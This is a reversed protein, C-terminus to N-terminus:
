EIEKYKFFYIDENYRNFLTFIGLDPFYAFRGYTGNPEKTTPEINNLPDVTLQSINWNSGTYPSGSWSLINIKTTESSNDWVAFQRNGIYRPQMMGHWSAGVLSGNITLTMDVWSGNSPNVSYIKNERILLIVDDEPSYDMGNYSSGDISNSGVSVWPQNAFDDIQRKFFRGTGVGKTWICRRTTDYCSGTGSSNGGGGPWSGGFYEIAGTAPNVVISKTTGTTASRYVNGQVTVVLGLDPVFVNKNYSHIARPLGDIYTGTSESAVGDNTIFGNPYTSNKSGSPPRKMVFKPTKTKLAVVVHENGGYDSHGGNFISHLENRVFDAHWGCWPYVIGAIGAAARWPSAAPYNPNLNPDKEADIDALKNTLPVRGWTNLRQQIIWLPIDGEVPEQMGAYIANGTTAIYTDDIVSADEMGAYISKGRMATYIDEYLADDSMGAFIAKGTAAVYVDNFAAPDDMGAFISKGSLATYFDNIAAPDDMGAYIANGTLAEYIEDFGFSGIGAFIDKGSLAFYEDDYLISQIARTIFINSPTKGFFIGSKGTLLSM